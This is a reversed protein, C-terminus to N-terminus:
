CAYNILAKRLVSDATLQLPDRVTTFVQYGADYAGEGYHEVMYSRVMEAVYPANVEIARGHLRATDATRIAAQYSQETIYGRQLLRGLVYNRRKIALAPNTIPNIRSPAKPLGAILAIQSLSLDKLESGYYVEAAAAVGYAQHGFYIKNLYLDLIEQKSLSREIVLALLIENLKRLYTKERSLFFNRAVQM